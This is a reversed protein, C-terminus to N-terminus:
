DHRGTKMENLKCTCAHMCIVDCLLLRFGARLGGELVKPLIRPLIRLAGLLANIILMHYIVSLSLLGM